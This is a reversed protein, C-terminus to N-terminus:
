EHVTTLGRQKVPGADGHRRNCWTGLAPREARRQLEGTIGTM